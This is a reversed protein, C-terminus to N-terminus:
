LVYYYTWKKLIFLRSKSGSGKLQKLENRLKLIEANALNLQATTEKTREQLDLIRNRYSKNKAKVKLYVIKLYNYKEFLTKKPALSDQFSTEQASSLVTYTSGQFTPDPFNYNRNQYTSM